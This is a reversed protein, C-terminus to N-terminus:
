INVMRHTEKERNRSTQQILCPHVMFISVIKTILFLSVCPIKARFTISSGLIQILFLLAIWFNTCYYTAVMRVKLLCFIFSPTVLHLVVSFNSSSGCTSGLASLSSSKRRRERYEGGTDRVSWVLLFCASLQHLVQSVCVAPTWSM